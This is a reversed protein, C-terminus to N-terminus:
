YVSPVSNATRDEDIGYLQKTTESEQSLEVAEPATSQMKYALEYSAIRAELNTNDYRRALHGENLHNLSQIVRQQETMTM